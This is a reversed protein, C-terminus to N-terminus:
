ANFTASRVVPASAFLVATPDLAPAATVVPTFFTKIPTEHASVKVVPLSLIQM